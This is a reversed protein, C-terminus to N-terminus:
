GTLRDTARQVIPRLLLMAPYAILWTPLWARAWRMTATLNMPNSSSLSISAAGHPRGAERAPLPIREEINRTM